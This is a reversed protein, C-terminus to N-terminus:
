EAAILTIADRLLAAALEVKDGNMSLPEADLLAREALGAIAEEDLGGSMAEEEVSTYVRYPRPSVGGLVLRVDGDVRRAAALSVFDFFGPGDQAHRAYSQLGGRAARPLLVATILERDELVTERDLRDVPLVFFDAAMVTRVGADCGIEIVADLAVLAVAPHSPHVMWCPGGDLIATHTSCGDHAPCTSGGNKLCPVNRRYYSCQPRQALSGGITSVDRASATGWGACAVALMPFDRQIVPNSAIDAIPCAAGIRVAGDDAAAIGQVDLPSM